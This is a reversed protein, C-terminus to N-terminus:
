MEMQAAISRWLANALNYFNSFDRGSLAAVDKAAKTKGRGVGSCANDNFAVESLAPHQVFLNKEYDSEQQRNDTQAHQTRLQADGIRNQQHNATEEDAFDRSHRVDSQLRLEYKQDEKRRQEIFGCPEGGPAIKPAQPICDENM